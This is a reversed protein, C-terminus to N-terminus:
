WSTKFIFSCDIVFFVQEDELLRPKIYNINSVARVIIECFFESM